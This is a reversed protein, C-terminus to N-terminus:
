ELCENNITICPQKKTSTPQVHSSDQPPLVDANLARGNKFCEAWVTTFLEALQECLYSNVEVQKDEFPLLDDPYKWGQSEEFVKRQFVLDFSGNYVFIEAEPERIVQGIKGIVGEPLTLNRHMGDVVIDEKLFVEKM